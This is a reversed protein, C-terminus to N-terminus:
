GSVNKEGGTMTKLHNSTIELRYEIEKLAEQFMSITSASMMSSDFLLKTKLYLFMPVQPFWEAQEGLFDGYTDEYGRIVYGNQPGVGLQSLTVISSTINILTVSVCM